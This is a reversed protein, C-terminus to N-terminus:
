DRVTACDEHLLSELVEDTLGAAEAEKGIDDMIEQLSRTPGRVLEGLRLSALLEIKQRDDVSANAYASATEDPVPISIAKTM